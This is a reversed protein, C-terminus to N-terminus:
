SSAAEEIAAFLGDKNGQWMGDWRIRGDRGVVFTMTVATVEYDRAARFGIDRAILLRESAGLEGRYYDRLAKLDLGSVDLILVKVGRSAFRRAAEDLAPVQEACSPCGAQLFDFVIVKGRQEVLSFSAGDVTEALFSPALRQGEGSREPVAQAREPETEVGKSDPTREAVAFVAVGVVVAALLSGALVLRTRRTRQRSPRRSGRTESM